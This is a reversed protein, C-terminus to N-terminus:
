NKSKMDNIQKIPDEENNILKEALLLLEQHTYEFLPDDEMSFLCQLIEKMTSDLAQINNSYIRFAWRSIKVIDSENALFSKLKKGFEQKNM